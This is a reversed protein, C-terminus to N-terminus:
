SSCSLTSCGPKNRAWEPRKDGLTPHETSIDYPTRAADLLIHVQSFDGAEAKEIAEQALYNRLVFWPNYADMRAQRDGHPIGQVRDLYRGLWITWAKLTEDAPDGYFADMLPSLDTADTVKSLGRFLITMDTETRQMLETLDVWLADDAEGQHHDLGLKGAIMNEASRKWAEEYDTMCAKVADMDDILPYLAEALRLVNWGGIQPQLGFRYRRAGFDTTNPTWEPDYNDIWGYPGYDITLGLVSMNDTNMVGHVFGVRMWEAMLRATSQAVESLFRTASDKSVSGLHSFHHDFTYQLVTKLTDIDGRASHIQYSGFRLFSRAVRCVIAGPEPREYGNYFMDRMVPDGTQVLSLARTTPIGLHHMAESCLFERISSRLVARGDAFRSYPTPGAGKLQLEYSVGVDNVVEGLTIARGDGLQGAWNGFQHGGYCAAYPAMGDVVANGGMANAFADSKLIADSIGLESAMESSVALVTPSAVPTPEVRSYAAGRVQRTSNGETPDGPLESVFSTAWQLEELRTASM